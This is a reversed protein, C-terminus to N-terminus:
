ATDPGDCPLVLARQMEISEGRASRSTRRPGFLPSKRGEDRRGVKFAFWRQASVANLRTEEGGRRAEGRPISVWFFFGVVDQTRGPWASAGAAAWCRYGVAAAALRPTRRQDPRMCRHMRRTRQMWGKAVQRDSGLLVKRCNGEMGNSEM